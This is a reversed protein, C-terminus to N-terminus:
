TSLLAVNEKPGSINRTANRTDFVLPANRIVMPYDFCSHATLILTVDSNSLLAPTLSQSKLPLSGLTIETMFPDVYRIHAGEKVLLELIKTAPSERQDEIDAKYTVGM